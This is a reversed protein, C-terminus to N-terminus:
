GREENTTREWQDFLSTKPGYNFNFNNPFRISMLDAVPHQIEKALEEDSEEEAQPGAASVVLRINRIAEIIQRVTLGLGAELLSSVMYVIILPDLARSLIEHV